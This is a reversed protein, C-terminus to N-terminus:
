SRHELLAKVVDLPLSVRSLQGADLANIISTFLNQTKTTVRDNKALFLNEDLQQAKLWNTIQNAIGSAGSPSGQDSIYQADIPRIDSAGGAKLAEPEPGFSFTSINIFRQTTGMPLPKTFAAWFSRAYRPAQSPIFDPSQGKQMLCLVNSHQGTVGVDYDKLNDKLFQGLKKHTLKELTIRDTGLEAGLRSLYIISEGSKFQADIFETLRKKIRAIESESTQEDLM